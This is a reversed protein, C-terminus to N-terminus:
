DYSSGQTGGWVHVAIISAVLADITSKDNPKIPRINGNRDRQAIATACARRLIPDDGFVFKRGAWLNQWLQCGPGFTGIGMRYAVMPAGDKVLQEVLYRSGWADYGISRVDFEEMLEGIRTRVAEYDIERGPTLTIRGDAAWARVPLRYDLERQRIDASPWWYHGRIAIRGDDLPVCVSVVTMDLSKSLDM